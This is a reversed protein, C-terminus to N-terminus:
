PLLRVASLQQTLMKCLEASREESARDFGAAILGRLANTLFVGDADQVERPTLSCVEVDFTELLCGRMVGAVGAEDLGPTYLKGANLVFLNSMTGCIVSGNHDCMLGEDASDDQWENRALVQALRNLHKIGALQKQVAVATECWRLRWPRTQETSLHGSSLILTAQADADIAYGRAGVGRSVILKLVDHDAYRQCQENIAARIEDGDLSPMNLRQASDLLRSMHRELLNIEGDRVRMTEFLGDGYAIARDSASVSDHANADLWRM